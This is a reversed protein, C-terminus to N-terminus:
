KPATTHKGPQITGKTSPALRGSCIKYRARRISKHCHPRISCHLLLPTPPYSSRQTYAIDTGSVTYRARLSIPLSGHPRLVHHYPGRRTARTAGYAIESGRIAGFLIAGYAIVSGRMAGCLM